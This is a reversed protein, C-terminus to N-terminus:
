SKWVNGSPTALVERLTERAGKTYLAHTWRSVVHIFEPSTALDGFVAPLGQVFPTVDHTPDHAVILALERLRVAIPDELPISEGKEGVGSCFRIWAAVCLAGLDISAGNHLGARLSPILFVPIKSSGDLCIRLTQDGLNPNAFREILTDCYESFSIGSVPKLFPVVERTWFKTLLTRFDADRAVQDILSYGALHGLYGLQSHGANLLRLKMDEYPTVDSTLIVGPVNEFAPRGLPFNDEIVWQFFRECVVPAADKLSYREDIHRRDSETIRPTIRDVMCNPFAVEEEVYTALTPDKLRCFAILANKLVRGNERLNDCSLLTPPAVNLTRRQALVEALLGLATRPPTSGALDSQIDTHDLLFRSAATDYYYGGESITLTILKVAPSVLLSLTPSLERSTSLAKVVSGIIRLREGSADKELLSYLGEQKNLAECLSAGSPMIDIGCLGWSRHEEFNRELLTDLAYAQHARHFAGCGIHAWGVSMRSRDYSPASIEGRDRLTPLKGEQLGFEMQDGGTHAIDM